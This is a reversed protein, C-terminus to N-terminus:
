IAREANIFKGKPYHRWVYLLYEGLFGFEFKFTPTNRLILSNKTLGSLLHKRPQSECLEVIVTKEVLM